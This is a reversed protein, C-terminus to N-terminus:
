QMAANVTGATNYFVWYGFGPNMNGSSIPTFGVPGPTPNANYGIIPLNYNASTTNVTGLYSSILEAQTSTFGVMNWGAPYSYSPPASPPPNGVRGQFSFQVTQGSTLNTNIWYAKGDV